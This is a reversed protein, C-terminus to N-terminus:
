APSFCPSGGSSTAPPWPSLGLAAVHPGAWTVGPRGCVLQCRLPMDGWQRQGQLRATPPLTSDQPGPIDGVSVGVAQDEPSLQSARSVTSVRPQALWHGLLQTSRQSRTCHRCPGHRGPPRALGAAGGPFVPRGPAQRGEEQEGLARSGPAARLTGPTTGHPCHPSWTMRPVPPRHKTSAQPKISWRSPDVTLVQGLVTDQKGEGGWGWAATTGRAM